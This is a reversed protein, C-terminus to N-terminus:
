ISEPNFSSYPQPDYAIASFVDRRYVNQSGPPDIISDYSGYTLTTVINAIDNNRNAENLTRAAQIFLLWFWQQADIAAGASFVGGSKLAGEPIFVGAEPVATGSAIYGSGSGFVDDFSPRM